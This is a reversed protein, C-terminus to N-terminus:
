RGRLRRRRLEDARMRPHDEQFRTMLSRILRSTPGLNGDITLAEASSSQTKAGHKRYMETIASLVFEALPLFNAGDATLEVGRGNGHIFTQSFENELKKIQHSIASQTVYMHRSTKTMSLSQAVSVFAKLQNLTLTM